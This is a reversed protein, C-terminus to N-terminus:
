FCPREILTRLRFPRAVEPRGRPCLYSHFRSINRGGVVKVFDDIALPGTGRVGRNGFVDAQDGFAAVAIGVHDIPLRVHKRPDESASAVTWALRGAAAAADLFRRDRDAPELADGGVELVVDPMAQRLRSRLVALADRQDTTARGRERHRAIERREAIVARHEIGIGFAPPM